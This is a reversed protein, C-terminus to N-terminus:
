ELIFSDALIVVVDHRAHAQRHDDIVEGAAVAEGEGRIDGGLYELVLAEDAYFM